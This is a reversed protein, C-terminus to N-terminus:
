PENIYRSIDSKKKEIADQTLKSAYREDPSNSRMEPKDSREFAGGPGWLYVIGKWTHHLVAINGTYSNSLYISLYKFVYCTSETPGDWSMHAASSAWLFLRRKKYYSTPAWNFHRLIETADNTSFDVKTTEGALGPLGTVESSLLRAM